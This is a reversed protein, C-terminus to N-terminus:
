TSTEGGCVLCRGEEDVCRPRDLVYIEGRPALPCAHVQIGAVLTRFADQSDALEPDWDLKSVVILPDAFEATDEVLIEPDYEVVSDPYDGNQGLWKEM